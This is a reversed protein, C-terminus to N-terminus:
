VLEKLVHNQIEPCGPSEESLTTIYALMEQVPSVYFNIYNELNWRVEATFQFFMM